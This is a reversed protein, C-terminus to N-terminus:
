ANVRARFVCLVSQRRLRESVDRLIQTAPISARRCSDFRMPSGLRGRSITQDGRIKVAEAAM